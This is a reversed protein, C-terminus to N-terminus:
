VLSGTKNPPFCTLLGSYFAPVQLIVAFDSTLMEAASFSTHLCAQLYGLLLKNLQKCLLVLQM